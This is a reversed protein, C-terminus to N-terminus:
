EGGVLNLCPEIYVDGGIEIFIKSAQNLVKM